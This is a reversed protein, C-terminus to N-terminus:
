RRELITISNTGKRRIGVKQGPKLIRSWNADVLTPDTLVRVVKDNRALIVYENFRARNIAEMSAGSEGSANNSVGRPSSLSLMPSNTNCASWVQQETTLRGTAIAKLVEDRRQQTVRGNTALNRVYDELRGM